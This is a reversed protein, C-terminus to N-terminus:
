KFKWKKTSTFKKLICNNSPRRINPFRKHFKEATKRASKTKAYTLVMFTRQEKDFQERVPM